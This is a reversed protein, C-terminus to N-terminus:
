ADDLRYGLRRIIRESGVQLGRCWRSCCDNRFGAKSLICVLYVRSTSDDEAIVVKSV